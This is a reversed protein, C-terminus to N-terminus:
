LVWRGSLRTLRWVGIGAGQARGAPGSESHHTQVRAAKPKCCNNGSGRSAWSRGELSGAPRVCGSCGSWVRTGAESETGLLLKNRAELAAPVVASFPFTLLITDENLVFGIEEDLGESGEVLVDVMDLVDSISVPFCAWTFLCQLKRSRSAGPRARSLVSARLPVLFLEAERPPFHKIYHKIRFLYPM